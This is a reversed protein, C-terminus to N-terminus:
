VLGLGGFSRFLEGLSPRFIANPSEGGFGAVETSPHDPGTPFDSAAVGVSAVLEDPALLGAQDVTAVDRHHLISELEDIHQRAAPSLVMDGPDPLDAVGPPPGAKDGDAVVVLHLNGARTRISRTVVQASEGGPQDAAIPYRAEARSHRETVVNWV